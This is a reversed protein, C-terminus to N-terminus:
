EIYQFNGKEPNLKYVANWSGGYKEQLINKEENKDTTSTSIWTPDKSARDVTNYTMDITIQTLTKNKKNAGISIVGVSHHQGRYNFKFPPQGQWEYFSANPISSIIQSLKRGLEKTAEHCHNTFDFNKTIDAIISFLNQAVEKGLLKEITINTSDKKDMIPPSDINM